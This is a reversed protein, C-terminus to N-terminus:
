TSVRCDVQQEAVRPDRQGFERDQKASVRDEAARKHDALARAQLQQVQPTALEDALGGDGHNHELVRGTPLTPTATV